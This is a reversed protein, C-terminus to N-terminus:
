RDGAAPRQGSMLATLALRRVQAESLGALEAQAQSESVSPGAAVDIRGDRMALVRDAFRAVEMRDHSVYIVPIALTQNIQELRGIIEAKSEVDLSSVPEDMLLLEPQVLLARGIAVRQREGGSLKAPSRELLPALDLLDVAQDFSLTRAGETRTLGFMLNRRVSLHPFLSAEQFVYGVPRRHPPTFRSADQWVAGNVKVTGTMRCLGSLCRLLTTKGCGSPGILATVGSAPASLDVDLEFAGLRGNLRAEIVASPAPTM